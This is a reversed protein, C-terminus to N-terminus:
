NFVLIAVQGMDLLRSAAKISENIHGEDVDEETLLVSVEALKEHALQHYTQSLNTIGAIFSHRSIEM